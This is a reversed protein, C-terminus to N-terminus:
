YGKLSWSATGSVRTGSSNFLYIRMGQSYITLNGSTNATTLSVTFSNANVVSAVTYTGPPATGTGFMLRVKQGVVLGHGTASVTCVNASVSYTGAIVADQFDYVATLPTTGQPTVTISTVDVFTVGFNAVTGSTDTSVCSIMGGDNKLKADLTVSLNTISYLGTGASDTATLRVKVYRFNTAFIQTQGPYDTYTSGDSSVSIQTTMSPTGAVVQANYAM